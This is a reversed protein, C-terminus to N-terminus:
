GIVAQLKALADGVTKMGGLEEEAFSVDYDEEIAMIIEVVDLSDLDLDDSLKTDETVATVEDEDLDLVEIMYKKLTELDMTDKREFDSWLGARPM